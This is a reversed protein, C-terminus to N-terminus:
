PIVKQHFFGRWDEPPAFTQHALLNAIDLPGKRDRLRAATYHDLLHSAARRELSDCALGLPIEPVHKRAFQFFVIVDDHLTNHRSGRQSRPRSNAFFFLARCMNGPKEAISKRHFFFVFFLACMKLLYIWFNNRM